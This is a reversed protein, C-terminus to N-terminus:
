DFLRRLLEDFFGGWWLLTACLATAFLGVWGNKPSRPKGHEIADSTLGFVLLALYILQPIIM